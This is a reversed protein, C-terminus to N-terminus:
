PFLIPTENANHKGSMLLSSFPSVSGQPADTEKKAQGREERM